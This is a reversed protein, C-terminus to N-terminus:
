RRWFVLWLIVGVLVVIAFGDSAGAPATGLTGALSRVEQDTLSAIREQASSLDVGYSHLERAIDARNIMALVASRESRAGSAAIQEGTGIMGANAVQFPTWAMMVVLLTCLM